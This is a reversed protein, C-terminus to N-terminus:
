RHDADLRPSAPVPLSKTLCAQLSQFLLEYYGAELRPFNEVRGHKWVTSREGPEPPSYINVNYHGSESSGTGDNVIEVVGVTEARLHEGHPWVELRCVIM